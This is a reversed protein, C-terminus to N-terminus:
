SKLFLQLFSVYSMPQTTTLQKSVRAVAEPSKGQVALSYYISHKIELRSLELKLNTQRCKYILLDKEVTIEKSRQLQELLQGVTLPTGLLNATSLTNTLNIKKGYASLDENEKLLPKYLLESRRCKINYNNKELIFYCDQRHKSKYNSLNLFQKNLGKLVIITEQPWFFRVEWSYNANTAEPLESFDIEHSNDIEFNWFLRTTM